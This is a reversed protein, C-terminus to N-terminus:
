CSIKKVRRLHRGGEFPENIFANVMDKALKLSVYRAPICLVNANNHGRALKALDVKWCIAARINQHKNATIAVGNGSGCILIGFTAKKEEVDTAVPHAFDPYDVSDDTFPGKDGVNIGAEVLMKVIKSKYEVGAHDSGISISIKKM